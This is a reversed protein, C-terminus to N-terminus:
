RDELTAQPHAQKWLHDRVYKGKKTKSYIKEYLCNNNPGLSRRAFCNVTQSRYLLPYATNLSSTDTSTHPFSTPLTVNGMKFTPLGNATLLPNLVTAFTSPEESNKDTAILVSIVTNFVCKKPFNSYISNFYHDQKTQAHNTKVSTVPSSHGPCNSHATTFIFWCSTFPQSRPQQM